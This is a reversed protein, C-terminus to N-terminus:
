DAAIIAAENTIMLPTRRGQAIDAISATSPEKVPVHTGLIHTSNIRLRKNPRRYVPGTARDAAKNIM